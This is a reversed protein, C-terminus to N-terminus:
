SAYPLVIAALKLVGAAVMLVAVPEIVSRVPSKRKRGRRRKKRFVPRAAKRRQRDAVAHCGNRGGCLVTLDEPLEHGLSRYHIHHVQLPRGPAKGRGCFACRHKARVLAQKRIRRWEPSALHAKYAASHSRRKLM